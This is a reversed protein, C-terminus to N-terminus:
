LADCCSPSRETRVTCAASSAPTRSSSVASMYPGNVLSSSTPRANFPRRSSANTEVFHPSSTPSPCMTALPLGPYTRRAQSAESLLSWVSTISRYWSWRASGSTGTSSVQPAIASSTEAPLTRDSPNHATPARAERRDVASRYSPVIRCNSRIWCIKGTLATSASSDTHDRCASASSSGHHTARPTPSSAAIGSPLPYRVPVSFGPCPKSGSSRRARCGRNM